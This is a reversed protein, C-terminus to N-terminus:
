INHVVDKGCRHLSDCKSTAVLFLYLAKSYSFNLVIYILSLNVKWTLM